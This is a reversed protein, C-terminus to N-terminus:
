PRTLQQQGDVPVGHAAVAHGHVRDAAGEIRREARALDRGDERRRVVVSDDELSVLLARGIRGRQRLHEDLAARAM